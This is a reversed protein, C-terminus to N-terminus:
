WWRIRYVPRSAYAAAVKTAGKIAAMRESHANAERQAINVQRQDEARQLRGSIEKMLQESQQRVKPSMNSLSALYRQAAAAGSEDPSASWAARARSIIEENNADSEKQVLSLLMEQAQTYQPCVAPIMLLIRYAEGYNGSAAYTEAKKILGPAAAAYYEKIRARGTVIAENVEPSNVNIHRYASAYAQDINGGVGRLNMNCSSFQTGDEGNGIYLTLSLDVAVHPPATSTTEQSLEIAHGTIIFPSILDNPSSVGYKTVIRNLMDKLVKDAKPTNADSVIYPSIMVEGSLESEAGRAPLCAMLIAGLIIRIKKM